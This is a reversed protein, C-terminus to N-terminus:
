RQNEAALERTELVDFGRIVAPRRLPRRYWADLRSFDTFPIDWKQPARIWPLLAIDAISHDGAIYDGEGLREDMVGLLRLVEDRYRGFAYDDRPRYRRFHNYQGAMTGLNGVQFFLWQLVETRQGQENPLLKGSKEALYILVAGSEAITLGVDTDVTVPIKGNPNIRRFEPQHQDGASLERRHLRYPLGCEELMVTAKRGRGLRGVAHVGPDGAVLAGPWLGLDALVAALPRAGAPHVAGVLRHRLGSPVVAGGTAAALTRIGM